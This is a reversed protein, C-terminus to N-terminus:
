HIYNFVPFLAPKPLKVGNKEFIPVLTKSFEKFDKESEWLGMVFIRNDKQIAVQYLRGKPHGRSVSELDKLTNGYKDPIFESLDIQSVIKGM